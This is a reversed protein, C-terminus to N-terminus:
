GSDTRKMIEGANERLSRTYREDRALHPMRGPGAQHSHKKLEELSIPRLDKPGDKQTERMM